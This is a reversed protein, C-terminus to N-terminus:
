FVKALAALVDDGYDSDKISFEGKKTTASLNLYVEAEDHEEPAPLFLKIATWSGHGKVDFGGNKDRTLGTGLSAYTFPVSQTHDVKQPLNKAELAMKLANLLPASQSNAVANISGKGFSISSDKGSTQPPSLKIDFRTTGESTAYVAHWVATGDPGSAVSTIDFGVSGDVRTYPEALSPLESPKKHCGGLLILAVLFSIRM